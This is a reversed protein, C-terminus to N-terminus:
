WAKCCIKAHQKKYTPFIRKHWTHFFLLMSFDTGLNIAVTIRTGQMLHKILHFHDEEGAMPPLIQVSDYTTLRYSRLRLFCGKELQLKGLQALPIPTCSCANLVNTWIQNCRGTYESWFCWDLHVLDRGREAEWGVLKLLCEWKRQFHKAGMWDRPSSFSSVKEEPSIWLIGNGCRGPKLYPHPPPAAKDSRLGVWNQFLDAEVTPCFVM